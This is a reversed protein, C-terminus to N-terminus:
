SQRLATKLNEEHLCHPYFFINSSWTKTFGFEIIILIYMYKVEAVLCSAVFFLGAYFFWFCHCQGMLPQSNPTNTAISVSKLRFYKQRTHIAECLSASHCSFPRTGVVSRAAVSSDKNHYQIGAASLIMDTVDNKFMNNKPTVSRHFSMILSHPPFQVSNLAGCRHLRKKTINYWHCNCLTNSSRM